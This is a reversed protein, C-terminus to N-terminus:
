VPATASSCELELGGAQVVVDQGFGLTYLRVFDLIEGRIFEGDALRAAPVLAQRGGAFARARWDRVLIRQTAPVLVDAGPSTRGLTVGGIRVMRAHSIVSVEISYLIRAGQRTVVADGIELFEVPIDGDRTLVPTGMALGCLPVACPASTAALVTRTM